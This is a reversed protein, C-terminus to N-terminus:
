TNPVVAVPIGAYTIPEWLRPKFAKVFVGPAEEDNQVIQVGFDAFIDHMNAVSFRWYDGPYDHLPFGLSRTTLLLWGCPRLLNKMVDIAESWNEVHELMETTIIGDFSEPKFHDLLNSVNCVIDVGPGPRLDTGVYTRPGQSMVYPKVTGNVNYSGVELIDKGKIDLPALSVRSFNLVSTHCM